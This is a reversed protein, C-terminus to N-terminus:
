NKAHGYAGRGNGEQQLQHIASNAHIDNYEKMAAPSNPSATANPFLTKYAVFGIVLLVVIVITIAVKPSVSSNM